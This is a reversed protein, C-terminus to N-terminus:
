AHGTQTVSMTSLFEDVGILGRCKVDRGRVLIYHRDFLESTRYDPYPKAGMASEANMYCIALVRRWRVPTLNAPSGM